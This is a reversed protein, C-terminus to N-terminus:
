TLPLTSQVLAHAAVLGDMQKEAYADLDTDSAGFPLYGYWVWNGGSKPWHCAQAADRLLEKATAFVQQSAGDLKIGVYALTEGASGFLQSHTWGFAVFARAPAIAPLALEFGYWRWQASDSEEVNPGDHVGRKVEAARVFADEFQGLSQTRLAAWEEIDQWHRLYFGVKEDGPMSQGAGMMEITALYERAGPACDPARDIADRIIVGVQTWTLSHWQGSTHVATVPPRGDMTLFVRTPVELEWAKSLRDCQKDEEGSFVKAEFLLTTGPMRVVLDARTRWAPRDEETIVTVPRAVALPLGLEDLLGSLVHSGLGHWGDPDLLWALGATLPLELYHIGLAHMLTRKGGHWRREGRLDDVESRMSSMLGEWAAPVAQRDPNPSEQDLHGNVDATPVFTGYGDAGPTPLLKDPNALRSM